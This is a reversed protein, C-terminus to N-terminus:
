YGLLEALIKAQALNELAPPAGDFCLYAETARAAHAMFAELHGRLTAPTLPASADVVGVACSGSQTQAGPRWISAAQTYRDPHPAGALDMLVPAFPRLAAVVAAATKADDGAPRLVWAALRGGLLDAWRPALAAEASEIAVLVRFGDPTDAAWDLPGGVGFATADVLLCSFENAYYSLRWDDPLDDPYYSGQWAAHDWGHSGLFLATM